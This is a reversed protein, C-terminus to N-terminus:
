KKEFDGEELFDKLASKMEYLEDFNPKKQRTLKLNNM